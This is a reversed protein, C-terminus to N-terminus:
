HTNVAYGDAAVKAAVPRNRHHGESVQARKQLDRRRSDYVLSFLLSAPVELCLSIDALENMTLLDELGGRKEFM